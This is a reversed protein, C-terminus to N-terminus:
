SKTTRAQGYEQLRISVGVGSIGMVYQIMYVVYTPDLAQGANAELEGLIPAVYINGLSRAPLGKNINERIRALVPERGKFLEELTMTKPM